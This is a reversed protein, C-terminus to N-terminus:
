KLLSLARGLQEDRGERIGRITKSVPVTPQIGVGHHQSGDHKLVRMGTWWVRYGLPLDTPNINGNTGATPEGVVEGLKYAEVIGMVSEAYSITSGDTLFVRNTTLQPQKVDLNWREMTVWEVDTRDPRHLRPVNWFASELRHSSLHGLWQPQGHPYGRMEFVLGKAKALNPLAADFEADTLRTIDVYWIGPKIEHLKPPRRIADDAKSGGCAVKATRIEGDDG